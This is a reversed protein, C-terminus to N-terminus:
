MFFRFVMFVGLIGLGWCFFIWLVFLVVVGSIGMVGLIIIGDLILFMIFNKRGGNRLKKYVSWIVRFSDFSFFRM